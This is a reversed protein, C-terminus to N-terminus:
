NNVMSLLEENGLESSSQSIRAQVTVLEGVLDMLSDLKGSKVRVSNTEIAKTKRDKMRRIQNQEEIASKIDNKSVLKEEVLIEGIKKQSGLVKDLSDKDLKGRGVLLEGIKQPVDGEMMPLHSIHEISIKCSDEVFIFVDKIENESYKTTLFLEWSVYCEEPNMESLPPIGSIDPISVIEGMEKLENILLLPNAGQYFVDKGPTFMIHFIREAEM